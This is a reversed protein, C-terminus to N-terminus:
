RPSFRLPTVKADKKSLEAITRVPKGRLDIVVYAAPEKRTDLVILHDEDWWDRVLVDASRSPVTSRRDGTATDWVCIAKQGRPCYTLFSRGSPSFRAPGISDGVWGIARGVRGALDRFRLGWRGGDHVYAVVVNKGGPAWGYFGREEREAGTRVVTSRRAEVDVIVYGGPNPAKKGKFRYFTLLVRKSDPSWNVYYGSDPREVTNVTFRAGTARDIITLFDTTGSTFKFWPSVAAWRGDPSVAPDGYDNDKAALAFTARGPDRVYTAYSKAKVDAVFYSTLRVPDSASEHVKLKVGPPRVEADAAGPAGPSAEIVRVSQKPLPTPTPVAPAPAALMTTATVTRPALAYVAGGSAAAIVVAAAALALVPGRRRAPRPPPLPVRSAPDPPPPPPPPLPLSASAPGAPDITALIQSHGVLRLLANSSTPRSAPDKSLCDGVLGRLEEGLVTLDPEGRLIGNMTGSMSGADFPSRGSAAFLMTTGWAFMDAAPGMPAGSLEEPTVHAPIGLPQTASAPETDLMRALAPEIVRPGDPGLIVTGPRLDHHRVDAQHISALATMTGIALRHLAPGGLPGDRDVAERLTPGKVYESVIYPSEGYMGTSTIRATGVVSVQRLREAEAAVRALVAAGGPGPTFMKLAAPEGHPDSVLYVISQPSAGLRGVVRHRHVNLPDGPELPLVDPM